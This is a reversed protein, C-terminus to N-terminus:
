LVDRALTSLLSEEDAGSLKPFTSEAFEVPQELLSANSRLNPLAASRTVLSQLPPVVVASPQTLMSASIGAGSSDNTIEQAEGAAPGPANGMPHNLYNIIVLVDLPTVWDDGNVDLFPPPVFPSVPPIPLPGANHTNLYNIVQLVDLPVVVGSADVDLPSVPNQWQHGNSVLLTFTQECWLGTADTARVRVSYSSETGDALSVATRLVNDAIAFRGNDTDGTGAALAYTFSDNPSPDTTAFTGISAGVASSKSIVTGSLTVATPASLKAVFMYPASGVTTLSFVGPGPNFDATGAYAGTVYVNGDAAVALDRGRDVKSTGGLASVGIFNGTADLHAVFAAQTDIGGVSTLSANGPGADFDVTQSFSGTLYVDKQRTVVVGNGNDYGAGGIAQAWRFNGLADLQVLFIDSYGVPTRFLEESGTNLDVRGFFIGTASV